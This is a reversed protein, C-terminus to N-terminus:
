KKLALYPLQLRTCVPPCADWWKATACVQIELNKVYELFLVMKHCSFLLLWTRHAMDLIGAGLLSLHLVSLGLGAQAVSHSNLRLIPLSSYGAHEIDVYSQQCVPLVAM